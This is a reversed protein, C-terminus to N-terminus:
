DKKTSPKLKKATTSVVWAGEQYSVPTFPVRCLIATAEDAPWLSGRRCQKVLRMGIRSDSEAKFPKKSALLKGEVLHRGVYRPHQGIFPKHYPVSVLLAERAYFSLM